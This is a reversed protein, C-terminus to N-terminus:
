RTAAARPRRRVVIGMALLGLGLLGISRPEPVPTPKTSKNRFDALIYLSSNNKEDNYWRNTSTLYSTGAGAGDVVSYRLNTVSVGAVYIDDDLSSLDSLRLGTVWDGPPNIPNTITLDFRESALSDSPSTFAISLRWSLELDSPGVSALTASNYWDLRGIVVGLGSSTDTDFSWNLAVSTLTSPSVFDTYWSTSGWQAQTGSDVIRCNRSSGSDDCGDLGYFTGSSGGEILIAHASASIGFLAISLLGHLLRHGM